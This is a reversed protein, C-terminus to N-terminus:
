GFPSRTDPFNERLLVAKWQKMSTECFNKLPRAKLLVDLFRRFKLGTVVRMLKM